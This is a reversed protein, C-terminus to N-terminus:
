RFWSLEVGARGAPRGTPAGHVTDPWTNWNRCHVLDPRFARMVRALRFPLAWTTARGISCMFRCTACSGIRWRAANISAVSRSSSSRRPLGNLLNVVGNELGGRPLGHVVQLIRLPSRAGARPARERSNVRLRRSQCTALALWRACTMSELSQRGASNPAPWARTPTVPPSTAPDGPSWAYPVPRGSGERLRPGDGARQLRPRHGPQLDRCRTEGDATWHALHGLALDVVHIYDRVGTGDPTPYDNGFVKLEPHKGVAVQAIFPMLNNPIGNPDEGIRGSAHAGVPNFYRLLAIHLGMRAAPDARHLDRLIEEVFLKTRGYPNTASLPFGRPDAGIRTVTSRQRPASSWLRSAPMAMARCLM